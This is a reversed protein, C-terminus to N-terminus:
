EMKKSLVDDFREFQFELLAQRPKKTIVTKAHAFRVCMWHGVYHCLAGGEKAPMAWFIPISTQAYRGPDLPSALVLRKPGEGVWWQLRDNKELPLFNWGQGLTLHSINGGKQAVVGQSFKFSLGLRSLRQNLVFRTQGVSRRLSSQVLVGGPRQAPVHSSSSENESKVRKRAITTKSAESEKRRKKLPLYEEESEDSSSSSNATYNEEQKTTAAPKREDGSSVLDVLDVRVASSPISPVVEAEVRPTRQGEQYEDVRLLARDLAESSSQLVDPHAMKDLTARFARFEVRCFPISNLDGIRDNMQQIHNQLDQVQNSFAQFDTSLKGHAGELAGRLEAGEDRHSIGPHHHPSDDQRENKVRPKPPAM